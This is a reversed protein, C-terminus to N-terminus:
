NSGNDKKLKTAIRVEIFTYIIYLAMGCFIGNINRKAQAIFLYILVSTAVVMLKLLSAGMTARVVANPNKNEIARKHFAVSLISVIFLICNAGLVVDADINMSDLRIRWLMIFSNVFIFVLFLPIILKAFSSKNPQM